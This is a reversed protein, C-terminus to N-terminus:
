FASGDILAGRDDPDYDRHQDFCRGAVQLWECCEPPGWLRAFIVVTAANTGESTFICCMKTAGTVGSGQVFGRVVEPM